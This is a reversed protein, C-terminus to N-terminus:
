DSCQIKGHRFLAISSGVIGMLTGLFIGMTVQIPSLFTLDLHNFFVAFVAEIRSAGAFFVLLLLLLAICGGVFGHIGGEFLFPILASFKKEGVPRRIEIKRAHIGLRTTSAFFFLCFLLAVLAVFTGGNRLLTSIERMRETGAGMYDVEEVEKLTTLLALLPRLRTTGAEKNLQIELSNPLATQEVNDLLNSRKGLSRKLRFFAEKSSVMNVSTIEPFARFKESLQEIRQQTVEPQLYVVLPLGKGWSEALRDMNLASMTALGFLLMGVTITAVPPLHILLDESKFRSLTGWSFRPSGKIEFILNKFRCFLSHM